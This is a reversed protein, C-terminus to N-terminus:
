KFAVNKMVWEMLKLDEQSDLQLSSWYNMKYIAIKGGLRNKGKILVWPKFVYISGNEKFEEPFDQERPRKRYNYNLPWVTKKNRRWIFKDHETASLLSDAGSKVLTKIAHDIDGSQRVPSTCQLFVVLDPEYDEKKKLENLAHILASESTAKDGALNKPRWIVESGYSLSVYAIKSDDTSVIVRDVLKSNRAQEISYGILPKGHIQLINKFPMRKSGGRAPIIAIIKYSEPTVTKIQGM